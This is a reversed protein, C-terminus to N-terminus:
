SSGEQIGVSDYDVVISDLAEQTTSERMAKEQTQQYAVLATVRADIAYALAWLDELEWEQCVDGTDNWTLNYPKGEQKAATAAFLKSTLWQQKESTIAYLKGDTWQLPHSELYAALDAKSQAIRANKLADLPDPQAAKWAGWAELDPTVTVSSTEIEPDPEQTITVFGNYQVLTAAQEDTLPLCGTFYSSRPASYAGSANPTARVYQM